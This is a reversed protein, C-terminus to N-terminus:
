KKPKPFAFIGDELAENVTVKSVEMRHLPQRGQFYLQAQPFRVGDVYLDGEEVIEVQEGSVERITAVLKAEKRSFYRLTKIKAPCTYTIVDCVEGRHRAIGEYTAREGNKKDPQYFNFLRRTSQEICRRETESLTRMRSIGEKKHTRILVAEGGHLLTTEVIEDMHVELRQSCPKRATLVVRAPIQKSNHPYIRGEISLTVVDKLAPETGIVLRARKIINGATPTQATLISAAVLGFFICLRIM